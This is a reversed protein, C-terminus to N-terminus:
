CIAECIQLYTYLSFYSRNTYGYFLNTFRRVKMQMEKSMKQTSCYKIDLKRLALSGNNKETAHTIADALYEWWLHEINDMDLLEFVQVSALSWNCLAFFSNRNLKCGFVRLKELVYYAVATNGIEDDALDCYYIRVVKCKAVANVENRIILVNTKMRQFEIGKINLLHKVCTLSKGDDINVWDVLVNEFTEKLDEETCKLENILYGCIDSVKRMSDWYLRDMECRLTKVTAIIFKKSAVDKNIFCIIIDISLQFLQNRQKQQKAKELFNNGDYRYYDLCHVVLELISPLFQEVNIVKIEEDNGFMDKIIGDYMYGAILQCSFLVVQYFENKLNDEIAEMRYKMRCINVASLFEMLTLHKFQFRERRNDSLDVFLGELFETGKGRKLLQSKVNGEFIIRNENLLEHCIKCLAWLESSYEGFIESCLKQCPGDKEVHEKLLLYLIWVYLEAANKLSKGGSLVSVCCLSNLFEPISSIKIHEKSSDITKNINVIDKKCSAFKKVYDKIQEDNLGEIEYRQVGGIDKDQRELKGEVQPRGTLIIKALTYKSNKIDLLQWIVSCDNSIDFLEELGDLIFLTSVGGELEFEFKTKLFESFLEHKKLASGENAAFTNIERCEMIVCLKFQTYIKSSAWLFALQKTLVTKGMGPLGSVFTVRDDHNILQSLEIDKGTMGKLHEFHQRTEDKFTGTAPRSESIKLKVAFEHVNVAKM